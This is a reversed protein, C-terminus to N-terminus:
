TSKRQVLRIFRDDPVPPHEERGHVRDDLLQVLARVYERMNLSVSTIAPDIITTLPINDVGIVALEEPIRLGARRAAEVSAMAWLDNYALVATVGREHWHAIATDAEGSDLGFRRVVPAALKARKCAERATELRFDAIQSLRDDKPRAFGIKTHGKDLLHQVQRRVLDRQISQSWEEMAGVNSTATELLAVGRKALLAKDAASLEMMSIAGIPSTANLTAALDIDGRGTLISPVYGRETLESSLETMLEGVTFNIPLHPIIFLVVRSKGTRLTQAAINPVYGLTDAAHRVTLATSEPIRGGPKDNLVYSVTAVSVGARRAVEALTVKRTTSPSM